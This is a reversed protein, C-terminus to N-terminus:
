MLLIQSKHFENQYKLMTTDLLDNKKDKLRLKYDQCHAYQHVGIIDKRVKQVSSTELHPRYLPVQYDKLQIFRSKRFIIPMSTNSKVRDKFELCFLLTQFVFKSMKKGGDLENLLKSLNFLYRPVLFKNWELIIINELLGRFRTICDNEAISKMMDTESIYPYNWPLITIKIHNSRDIQISTLLNYHDFSGYVIFNNIGILKHFNLFELYTSKNFQSDNPMVCIGSVNQLPMNSKFNVVPIFRQNNQDMDQHLFTVGIPASYSSTEQSKCYLVFSKTKNVNLNGNHFTERNKFGLNSFSFEGTRIVPPTEYQFFCKYNLKESMVGVAFAKIREGGELKEWYASYVYLYDNLRQWTPLPGREFRFSSELSPCATANPAPVGPTGFFNLVELVYRLKNYEHRYILLCSFSFVSLIVLLLQQYKKM